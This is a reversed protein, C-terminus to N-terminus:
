CFDIHSSKQCIFYIRCPSVYLASFPMDLNKFVNKEPVYLQLHIFLWLFDFESHYLASCQFIISSVHVHIQQVSLYGDKDDKHCSFM